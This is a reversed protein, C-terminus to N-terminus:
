CMNERCSYYMIANYMCTSFTVSVRGCLPLPIIIVKSESPVLFRLTISETYEHITLMDINFSLLENKELWLNFLLNVM